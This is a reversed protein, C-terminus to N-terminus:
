KKIIKNRLRSLSVPTIGLYTALYKLPIHQIFDSHEQVFELYREEATKTILSIIRESSKIYLSEAINRGYKQHNASLSYAKELSEFDIQEVITDKIALIRFKSPERKLFSVYSSFFSNEIFFNTCIENGNHYTLIAVCGKVIFSLHNEITGQEIIIEKKKFEKITSLDGFIKNYDKM